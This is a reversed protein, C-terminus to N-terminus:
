KEERRAPSTMLTTCLKDRPGQIPLRRRFRFLPWDKLQGPDMPVIPIISQTAIAIALPSAGASEAVLFKTGLV